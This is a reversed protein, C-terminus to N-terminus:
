PVSYARYLWSGLSDGGMYFPLSGTLGNPERDPYYVPYTRLDEVSLADYERASLHSPRVNLGALPTVWGDLAAEDWVEPVQPKWVEPKEEAPAPSFFFLILPAQTVATLFRM